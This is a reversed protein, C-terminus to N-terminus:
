RRGLIMTRWTWSTPGRVGHWEIRVGVPLLKYRGAVSDPGVAGDGDLDRPLMWDGLAVDERLERGEADGSTTPFLIRGCKGDRDGALPVLGEVDFDAGPATGAGPPPDDAAYGNYTAFIREFATGRMTEIMKEAGRM